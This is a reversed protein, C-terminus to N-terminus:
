QVVILLGLGGLTVKIGTSDVSVRGPRKKPLGTVTWNKLDTAGDLTTGSAFKLVTIEDGVKTKNFEGEPLAVTAVQPLTVKGSVTGVKAVDTVNLVGNEQLELGSAASITGQCTLTKPVFKSVGATLTANPAVRLTEFRYPGGLWKAALYSRIKTANDDSQLGDWRFLQFEAIRQGGIQMYRDNAFSNM